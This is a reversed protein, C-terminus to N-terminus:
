EHLRRGTMETFLDDLTKRRCEMHKLHLQRSSLLALFQPLQEEIGSLALAGKANNPTWRIAFPAEQQFQNLAAQEGELTFQIIKEDADAALLQDLTGQRLIRGHDIIVV